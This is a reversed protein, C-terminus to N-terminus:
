SEESAGPLEVIARTGTEDVEFRVEGGLSAVGWEILWLGLGSGHELATEEGTELVALEHDPIGPGQDRVEYTAWGTEEDVGVLEVEVLPADGTAHELGNEILNRFVRDVIEPDAVLDTGEPVDIRVEGGHEEELDAGIGELFESVGIRETSGGEEMTREVERAKEALDIVGSTMEEATGLLGQIEDDEVRDAAVDLYGDVVNLDNRLNHRLVRNLVALRQERRREATVDQLVVTEGVRTGTGDEIASATVVYERRAGDTTITVDEEPIGADAGPLHADLPQGLADTGDIDLVRRAEGNLDVIRDDDDVILVATGLDDIAAREGVRRAAPTLEFMNRSFFAYGDFALHVPFALPTLNIQPAPGIKLLWLLFALGPLIPSLAVAATQTRYLPGYSFFTDTLLFAGAAVTLIIGIVNLFLWPEHTYTVTAAGFTPEIHYNKWAVHHLPNTAVVLTHLAQLAVLGGMWRSRLLSSRGTYELAFALFFVGIFDIGLWIPIEFLRRLGPDFVFLAAGYAFAWLAECGITAIFFRAGPEERYPWLYRVFAVSAVGSALAGVALWPVHSSM